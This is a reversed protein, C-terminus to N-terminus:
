GLVVLRPLSSPLTVSGDHRASGNGRRARLTAEAHPEHRLICVRSHINQHFEVGKTRRVSPGPGPNIGITKFDPAWLTETPDIAECRRHGLQTRKERSRSWIASRKDSRNRALLRCEIHM